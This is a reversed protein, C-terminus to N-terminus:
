PADRRKLKAIARGHELRCRDAKLKGIQVWSGLQDRWQSRALPRKDILPDHKRHGFEEVQRLCADPDSFPLTLLWPHERLASLSSHDCDFRVCPVKVKRRIVPLPALLAAPDVAPRYLAVGPTSVRVTRLASIALVPQAEIVTPNAGTAVDIKNMVVIADADILPRSEFNPDAVFLPKRLVPMCLMQDFGLVDRLSHDERLALLVNTVNAAILARGDIV